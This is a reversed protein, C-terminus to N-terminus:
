GGNKHPLGAIKMEELLKQVPIPPPKKADPRCPHFLYYFCQKLFVSPEVEYKERIAELKTCIIDPTVELAACTEDVYNWFPKLKHYRGKM